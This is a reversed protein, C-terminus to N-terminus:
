KRSQRDLAAQCYGLLNLETLEQELNERTPEELSNAVERLLLDAFLARARHLMQRVADPSLAKGIQVGVDRALDPSAMKPHVARFHLVTFFDPQVENLAEWTRALLEERWSEVFAREEDAPGAPAVVEAATGRPQRQQKKRHRSVLHLLVAKVYDRFRGGGRTAKGVKGEVLALAFEQTLDDAADDDRLVAGLYRRAAGTYRKVLLARAAAAADGAQGHAQGLLTWSTSIKDLRSLM